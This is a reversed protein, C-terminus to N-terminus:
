LHSSVSRNSNYQPLYPSWGRGWYVGGRRRGGGFLGGGGTSWVLTWTLRVAMLVLREGPLSLAKLRTSM